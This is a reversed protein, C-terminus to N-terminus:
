STSANKVGDGIKAGHEFDGHFFEAGEDDRPPVLHDRVSPDLHLSRAGEIIRTM